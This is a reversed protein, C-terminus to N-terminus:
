LKVYGENQIMGPILDIDQSPIPATYMFQQTEYKLGDKACWFEPCGNRKLEFWRDGEMFLEKRRECHIAWLLPTFANGEANIRVLAYEDVAPLNGMTYPTYGTIRKSRLLNLYDLAEKTQNLYAHSEALILCMEASRVCAMPIKLAERKANFSFAYRVDREKEEFLDIFRKSVPKVPLYGKASNYNVDGSSSTLLYSRLLVNGQQAYRASLMDTYVAGEVLPYADLIEKAVPIAQEWNQTWFYLRALYAKVVDETYRYIESKSHYSIAKKFDEEILTAVEKLSSRKPRAEMDFRTVISLGLQEEAKEKNYPECFLRMLNYYAVGRMAYATAYCSKALDTDSEKMEHIVLNCNRILSYLGRYETRFSNLRDGVYKPIAGMGTVNRTLSNEMNDGFCELEFKEMPNGLIAEDYGEDIENLHSNLLAGFEEATKPIVEGKPKVDLYEKCSVCAFFVILVLSINKMNKM